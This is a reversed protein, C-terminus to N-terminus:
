LTYWFVLVYGGGDGGGRRAFFEGGVGRRNGLMWFRKMVQLNGKERRGVDIGPGAGRPRRVQRDKWLGERAQVGTRRGKGM